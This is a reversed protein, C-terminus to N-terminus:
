IWGLNQSMMYQNLLENKIRAHERQHDELEKESSFVQGDETCVRLTPDIMAVIEEWLGGEFTSSAAGSGLVREGPIRFDRGWIGAHLQVALKDKDGSMILDVDRPNGHIINALGSKKAHLDWHGVQVEESTVVFGQKELAERIQSYVSAPDVNRDMFGFARM